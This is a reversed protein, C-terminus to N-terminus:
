SYGDPLQLSSPEGNVYLCDLFTDCASANQSKTTLTANLKTGCVRMLLVSFKKKVIWELYNNLQARM